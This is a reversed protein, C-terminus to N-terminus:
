ATPAEAPKEAAVDLATVAITVAPTAAAAPAPAGGAAAITAADPSPASGSNRTLLNQFFNALSANDTNAGAASDSTRRPAAAVASPRRAEGQEGLGVALSKRAASAGGGGLKQLIAAHRRLFTQMDECEETTPMAGPPAELSVVVSEFSRELGGGGPLQAAAQDVKTQTDWGTPVFLADRSPVQPKKKLPFAYLRNMIYDFLTDVNRTNKAQCMTYILAAGYSLCENRLYAEITESWGSTKQSDLASAGDARTVVIIIPIGMNYVLSASGSEVTDNNESGPEKYNSITGTVKERLQDQEGLPLLQMMESTMRQLVELWSRLDELMTWPAKLDLCIVAAAHKMMDGSLRSRLIQEHKMDELILVSCASPCVYDPASANEDQEPDRAGFYAYDLGVARSHGQPNSDSSTDAAAAAPCAHHLLQQMLTRKGIGSRGLMIVTKDPMRSETDVEKLISEWLGSAVQADPKNM